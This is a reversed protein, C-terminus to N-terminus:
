TSRPSTGASTASTLRPPCVCTSAIPVARSVTNRMAEILLGTVATAVMSSTSSHRSRSSSGTSSSSGSSAPRRTSRLGSAASSSVTGARRGMVTRSRSVNVIPKPWSIAGGSAYGTRAAAPACRTPMPGGSGSPVGAGSSHIRRSPPSGNIYWGPSRHSYLVPESTRLTSTARAPPCGNSANRRSRSNPGSPMGSVPNLTGAPATSRNAVPYRTWPSRSTTDSSGAVPFHLRGGANGDPAPPSTDM